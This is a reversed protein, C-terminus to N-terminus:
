NDKNYLQITRFIIFLEVTMLVVNQMSLSTFLIYISYLFLLFELIMLIIYFKKNM